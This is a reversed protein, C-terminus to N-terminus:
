RSGEEVATRRCNMSGEWGKREWRGVQMNEEQGQMEKQGDM